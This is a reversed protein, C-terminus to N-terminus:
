GEMLVADLLRRNKLNRDVQPDKREKQMALVMEYFVLDIQRTKEERKKQM